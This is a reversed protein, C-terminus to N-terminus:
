HLQWVGIAGKGSGDGHLGSPERQAELRRGPHVAERGGLLIAQEPADDGAPCTRRDCRGISSARAIGAAAALDVPDELDIPHLTLSTEGVHM